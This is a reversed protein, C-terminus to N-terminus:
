KNSMLGIVDHKSLLKKKKINIFWFNRNTIYVSALSWKITQGKLTVKVMLKVFTESSGIHWIIKFDM